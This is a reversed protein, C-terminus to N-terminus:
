SICCLFNINGLINAIANVLNTQETEQNHKGKEPIVMSALVPENLQLFYDFASLCSTIRQPLTSGIVAENGVKMTDVVLGVDGVAGWQM